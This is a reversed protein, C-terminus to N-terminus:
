VHARGIKIPLFIMFRKIAITGFSILEADDNNFLSVLQEPFIRTIIWGVVVIVTAYIVALKYAEKVRDYRQAGYNYGIIPQVGQNIGFIPM